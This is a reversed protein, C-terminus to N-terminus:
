LDFYYSLNATLLTFPAVQNLKNKSTTSGLASPKRGFYYRASFTTSINDSFAAGVQLGLVPHLRSQIAQSATAFSGTTKQSVVSIGASFGTLFWQKQYVINALGTITRMRYAFDDTGLDFRSQPGYTYDISPGIGLSKFQFYYGMLAQWPILNTRKASVGTTSKPLNIWGIGIGASIFPKNYINALCLMPFICALILLKRM